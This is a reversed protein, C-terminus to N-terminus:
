FYLYKKYTTALNKLSLDKGQFMFKKGDARRYKKGLAAAVPVIMFAPRSYQVVTYTANNKMVDDSVTKLQRYLDKKAITKTM